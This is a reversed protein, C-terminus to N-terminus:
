IAPGTMTSSRSGRIRYEPAQSALPVGDSSFPVVVVCPTLAEPFGATPFAVNVNVPSTVFFKGRQALDQRSSDPVETATKPVIAAASKWGFAETAVNLTSREYRTV